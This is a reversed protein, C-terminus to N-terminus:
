RTNFYHDGVKKWRSGYEPWAGERFYYIGPYSRQELEVLVTEYTESSVEWINDMGGDYYSTFQYPQAIVESITNPWIGSDDDVRNLIVDTVLRKGVPGQNGAEAEVCIALLEISDWYMEEAIQEPTMEPVDDPIIGIQDTQVPAVEPLKTRLAKREQSQQWTDAEQLEKQAAVWLGFMMLFILMTTIVGRTKRSEM